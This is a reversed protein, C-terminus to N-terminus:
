GVKFQQDSYSVLPRVTVNHADDVTDECWIHEVRCRPIPAVICAEKPYSGLEPLKTTSEHLPVLLSLLASNAKQADDISEETQWLWAPAGKCFKVHKELSADACSFERRGLHIHEM